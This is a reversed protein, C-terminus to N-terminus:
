AASQTAPTADGLVGWAGFTTAPIRILTNLANWISDFGLVKDMLFEGVTIGRRSDVQSRKFM